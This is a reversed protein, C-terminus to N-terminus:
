GASSGSSALRARLMNIKKYEPLGTVESGIWEPLCLYENSSELEVEALVVGDLPSDYVDIEWEHGAYFAYHRTKKLVVSSCHERLMELADERPIEYEYESRRGQEQKSKVTLTAREEYLRVRVKRGDTAAVLGDCLQESRIVCSRWGDGRVLFKREIEIAM